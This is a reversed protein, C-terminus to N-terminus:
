VAGFCSLVIALYRTADRQVISADIVDNV